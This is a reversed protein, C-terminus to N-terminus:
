VINTRDFGYIINKVTNPRVGFEAALETPPESARLRIARVDDDTLKTALQFTTRQNLVHISHLRQETMTALELNDPSNDHKTGNKHNITLGAPIPGFFHHWVLRHAGTHYRRWEIMTRVM